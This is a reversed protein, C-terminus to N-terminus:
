KRRRRRGQWSVVGVMALLVPVAMLGSLVLTGAAVGGGGAALSGGGLWTLTASTAAVRAFTSISAGTSAATFADVTTFATAGADAGAIMGGVMYLASLRM